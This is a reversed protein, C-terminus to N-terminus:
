RRHSTIERDPLVVAKHPGTQHLLGGMPQRHRPATVLRAHYRRLIWVGTLGVAAVIGDQWWPLGELTVAALTGMGTLLVGTQVLFALLVLQRSRTARRVQPATRGALLLWLAFLSGVLALGVWNM